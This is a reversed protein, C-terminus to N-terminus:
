NIKLKIGSGKKILSCSCTSYTFMVMLRVKYITTLKITIHIHTYPSISPPIHPSTYPPHTCPPIYAHTHEHTHISLNLPWHVIIADRGMLLTVAFVLFEETTVNLDIGLGHSDMGTSIRACVHKQERWKGDLRKEWRGHSGGSKRAEASM